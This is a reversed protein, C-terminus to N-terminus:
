VYLVLSQPSLVLLFYENEWLMSHSPWSWLHLTRSCEKVTSLISTHWTFLSLVTNTCYSFLKHSVPYSCAATLLINMFNNTPWSPWIALPAHQSSQLMLWTVSSTLCSHGDVSASFQLPTHVYKKSLTTEKNKTVGPCIGPALTTVNWALLSKRLFQWDLVLKGMPTFVLLIHM